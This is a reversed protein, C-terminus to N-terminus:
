PDGLHSGADGVNDQKEMGSVLLTGRTKEIQEKGDLVPPVGTVENLIAAIQISESDLFGNFHKKSCPVRFEVGIQRTDHWRWGQDVVVRVQEDVRTRM